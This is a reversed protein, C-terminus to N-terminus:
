SMKLKINLNPPFRVRVNVKLDSRHPFNPEFTWSQAYILRSILIRTLNPELELALFTTFIFFPLM